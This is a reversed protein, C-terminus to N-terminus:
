HPPPLAEIQWRKAPERAVEWPGHKTAVDAGGRVTHTAAPEDGTVAARLRASHKALSAPCNKLQGVSDLETTLDVGIRGPIAAKGTADLLDCASKWDGKKVYDLFAEVTHKPSDPKPPASSGGCGGVVLAALVGVAVAKM